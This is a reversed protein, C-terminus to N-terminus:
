VEPLRDSISTAGEERAEKKTKAARRVVDFAADPHRDFVFGAQSTEIDDWELGKCVIVPRALALAEAAAIGFNERVDGDLGSPLILFHSGEILKNVQASDLYGRYEIARDSQAIIKQFDEFYAAEAAGSSCGAM